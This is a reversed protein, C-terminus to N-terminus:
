DGGKYNLYSAEFINDPFNDAYINPCLGEQILLNIINPFSLEKIVDRVSVNYYKAIDQVTEGHKFFLNASVYNLAKPM